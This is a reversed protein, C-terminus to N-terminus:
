STLKFIFIQQKKSQNLYFTCLMYILEDIKSRKIVATEIKQRNLPKEKININKVAGFLIQAMTRPIPTASVLLLDTAKNQKLLKTRQDAGMVFPM